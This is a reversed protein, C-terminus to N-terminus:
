LAKVLLGVFALRETLHEDDLLLPRLAVPQLLQLLEVLLQELPFVLLVPPEDLLHVRHHGVLLEADLAQPVLIGLQEQLELAGFGGLLIFGEELLSHELQALDKFLGLPTQVLHLYLVCQIQASDLTQTLFLAFTLSCLHFLKRILYLEKSDLVKVKLLLM